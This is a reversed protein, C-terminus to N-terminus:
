NVKMSIGSNEMKRVEHILENSLNLRIKKSVLDVSMNNESDVLSVKFSCIGPSASTITSIHKAM